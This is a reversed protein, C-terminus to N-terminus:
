FDPERAPYRNCKSLAEAVAEAHIQIETDRQCSAFDGGLDMTLDTCIRASISRVLEKDPQRQLICELKEKQVKMNMAEIEAAKAAKGKEVLGHWYNTIADIGQNLPEFAKSLYNAASQYTDNLKSITQSFM